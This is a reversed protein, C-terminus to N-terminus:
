PRRSLGERVLAELRFVHGDHAGISRLADALSLLYDVNSGSPGEAGLVQAAIAPLPACGLYSPNDTAAVYVLARAFAPEGDAAHVDCPLRRYGNKERHDLAALVEEAGQRALRYAIGWARAGDRPLLTVVRGPASPVGRHDTSAQWFRRRYGTIFGARREVFSFGVRWMLSGYGFVWM